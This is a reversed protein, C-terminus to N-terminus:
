KEEDSYYPVILNTGATLKADTSIRNISAIDNVLSQASRYYISDLNESAISWVSDGSTVMVTKYYLHQTHADDSSADSFFSFSLFMGFFIAIATMVVFIIIRRHLQRERRRRNNLSRIRSQEVADYNNYSRNTGNITGVASSM